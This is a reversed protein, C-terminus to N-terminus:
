LQESSGEKPPSVTNAYGLIHLIAVGYERQTANELITEPDDGEVFQALYKILRVTNEPTADADLLEGLERRRRLFGPTEATPLKWKIAM